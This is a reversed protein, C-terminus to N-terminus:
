INDGKWTEGGSVRQEMEGGGQKYSPAEGVRWERGGGRGVNGYVPADFRSLVLPREEWQHRGSLMDTPVMPEDMHVRPITTHLIFTTRHGREPLRSAPLKVSSVWCQWCGSGLQAFGWSAAGPIPFYLGTQACSVDPAPQPIGLGTLLGPGDTKLSKPM